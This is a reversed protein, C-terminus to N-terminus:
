KWGGKPSSASEARHAEPECFACWDSREVTLYRQCQNCRPVSKAAGQADAALVDSEHAVAYVKDGHETEGILTGEPVNPIGRTM